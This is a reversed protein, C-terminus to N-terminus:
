EKARWRGSTAVLVILSLIVPLIAPYQPGLLREFLADGGPTLVAKLHRGSEVGGLVAATGGALVAWMAGRSSVKLRERYFSALTPFVVGGVFVTYGLLLSSIIGQQLDAVLWASGGLVVVAVKTLKLEADKSLGLVPGVVNLSLITSASMLTTDASSMVAALFGAVVLGKLGVPVIENVAAPLAAEPALEPFRARISLGLFALVLSVPIVVAAAALVSRRAVRDDKACFVRSYIDPGVLYPLGVVLPYFVLLDYVGFAPSVPFRWHGEPAEGGAQLLLALCLILGGLFLIFQWSDTRIVSLQGGWFTYLIFVVVIFAMATDFGLPFIGSLLRAGAIMQAAIVGCWATTIMVAAPVAVKHGYADDLIDPLTYVGLSRVRGALFLGFPILALGGTLSWWAGTLGRSYGLGIIGITSSAGFITAVLSAAIPSTSYRRDAVWYSEASRHRCRWGVALMVGFYGGIVIVDIM